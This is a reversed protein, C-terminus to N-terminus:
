GPVTDPSFAQIIQNRPHAIHELLVTMELVQSPREGAQRDFPAATAFTTRSALMEIWPSTGASM